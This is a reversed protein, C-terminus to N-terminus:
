MNSKSGDRYLAEAQDVALSLERTVLDLAESRDGDKPVVFPPRVVLAIRCFPVPLSYRDWRRLRYGSTTYAGLPFIRAGALAALFVLGEKPVRAPGDPGDPHVYGLRGSRLERVLGLMRMPGAVSRDAGSIPFPKSGVMRVMVSLVQTRDDDTVIVSVRGLDLVRMLYPLLLHGQGHWAAMVSPRDDRVMEEIYRSGAVTIRVTRQLIRAYLALAWGEVSRILRMM